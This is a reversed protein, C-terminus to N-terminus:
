EEDRRGWRGMQDASALGEGRGFNITGYMIPPFGVRVVSALAMM